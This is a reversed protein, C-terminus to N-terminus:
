FIKINVAVDTCTLDLMLKDDLNNFDRQMSLISLLEDAQLFDGATFINICTSMLEDILKGFGTLNFVIKNSGEKIILARKYIMYKFVMLASVSDPQNVFDGRRIYRLMEAAFVSYVDENNILLLQECTYKLLYLSFIDSRLEHLVEYLYKDDSKVNDILNDNSLFHGADHGWLWLVLIKESMSPDPNEATGIDDIILDALKQSILRYREFYLNTFLIANSLSSLQQKKGGSYFLSFPMHDKNIYGAFKIANVCKFSNDLNILKNIESEEVLKIKQANESIFKKYDAILSYFRADETGLVASYYKKSDSSSIVKGFVLVVTTDESISIDITALDFIGNEIRQIQGKLKSANESTLYDSCKYLLAIIEKYKAIETEHLGQVTTQASYLSDVISLIQFLPARLELDILEAFESSDIDASFVPKTM